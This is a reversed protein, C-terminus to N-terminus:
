EIRTQFVLKITDQYVIPTDVQIYLQYTVEPRLAVEKLSSRLLFLPVKADSIANARAILVSDQECFLFLQASRLPLKKKSQLELSLIRVDKIDSPTFSHLLAKEYDASVFSRCFRYELRTSDLGVYFPYTYQHHVLLTTYEKRLCGFFLLFSGIFGLIKNRSKM